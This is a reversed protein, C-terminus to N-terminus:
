IFRVAYHYREEPFMAHYLSELHKRAEPDFGHTLICFHVGFLIVEVGSIVFGAHDYFRLRRKAVEVDPADEPYESELILIQNRYRQSLAKLIATGVGTGRYEPLVALYDILVAEGEPIFMWAYGVQKDGDWAGLLEYVGSRVMPEIVSWPKIEDEPFDRQMDRQFYLFGEELTQQKLEIKM